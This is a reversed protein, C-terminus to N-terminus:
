PVQPADNFKLREAAMEKVIAFFEAAPYAHMATLRKSLTRIPVILDSGAASKLWYAQILLSPIELARPEYDDKTVEPLSRALGAVGKLLEAPVAGHGLRTLGLARGAGAPAQVEGALATGAPSETLFRWGVDRLAGLGGGSALDQLTATFVRHVHQAPPLGGAGAAAAQIPSGAPRSMAAVGDGFAKRVDDPPISNLLAM